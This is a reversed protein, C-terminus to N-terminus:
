NRSGLWSHHGYADLHFFFYQLFHEQWHSFAILIVNNNKSENWKMSRCLVKLFNSMLAHCVSLCAKRGFFSWNWSSCNWTLQTMKLWPSEKTVFLSWCNCHILLLVAVFSDLAQIGSILCPPFQLAMYLFFYLKGRLCIVDLTHISRFVVHLVAM